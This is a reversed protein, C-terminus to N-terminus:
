GPTGDVSAIGAPIWQTRTFGDSYRAFCGLDQALLKVPERMIRLLFDAFNEAFPAEANTEHDSYFIKGINPGESRIMFYNGSRPATAFALSASQDSEEDDMRSRVRETAKPVAALPLVEVGAASSLTDRYLVLGNHKSYFAQFQEGVEGLTAPLHSSEDPLCPSNLFHVVHTTFRETAGKRGAPKCQFALPRTAFERLQEIATDLHLM